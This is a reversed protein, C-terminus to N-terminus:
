PRVNWCEVQLAGAVDRVIVGYAGTALKLSAGPALGAALLAFRAAGNSTVLLAPGAAQDLFGRWAALRSEADVIWGPPPVGREDWAALAPAGIRALVRDEPQDEDPGHDIERLWPCPAPAAVPEGPQHALIATATARTRQLPSVLAQAFRWGQAAFHRGLAQAQAQGADTLPLDTRAGIRRPAQGAAFTNGHRVIVFRAPPLTAPTM